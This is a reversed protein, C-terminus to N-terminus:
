FGIASMLFLQLDGWSFSALIVLKPNYQLCVPMPSGRFGYSYRGLEPGPGYGMGAANGVLIM